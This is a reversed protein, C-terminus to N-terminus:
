PTITVQIKYESLNVLKWTKDEMTLVLAVDNSNAEVSAVNEYTITKDTKYCYVTVKM